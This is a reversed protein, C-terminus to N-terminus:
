LKVKSIKDSKFVNHLYLNCKQKGEVCTQQYASTRFYSTFSFFRLKFVPLIYTCFSHFDATQMARPVAGVSCFEGWRPLLM